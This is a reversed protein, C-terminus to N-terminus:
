WRRQASLFGGALLGVLFPLRYSRGSLIDDRRFYPFRTALSCIDEFGTSVGLRRNTLALLLLTVLAIGIGGLWWPWAELDNLILM